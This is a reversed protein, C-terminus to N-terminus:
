EAATVAEGGARTALAPMIPNASYSIFRVSGDCFAFNAGGPHPSWFHFLDCQQSFQGPGFQYPGEPCGASYQGHDFQERVGLLMDCVGTGATGEGTYWWGYWFDASPPREGLLLTNAAGDSISNFDIASDVFLVGDKRTYDTGACGLYSTLAPYYGQHTFQANIVREDSPCQFAAVPRSFLPHVTPDRTIGYYQEVDSWMRSQEIEPLIRGLWSLGPFPRNRSYSTTGQPLRGHSAQYSHLALGLQKVKNACSTRAATERVRQVAPLLLAMLVAVIAVVVLLEVLSFASRRNM